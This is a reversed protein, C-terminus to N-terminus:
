PLICRFSCVFFIDCLNAHSIQLLDLGNRDWGREEVRDGDYRRLTDVTIISMKVCICCCRCEFLNCAAYFLNIDIFAFEFTQQTHVRTKKKQKCIEFSLCGLNSVSIRYQYKSFQIASLSVFPSHVLPHAFFFLSPCFILISYTFCLIHFHLCALIAFMDIPNEMPTKYTDFLM